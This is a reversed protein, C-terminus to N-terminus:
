NAVSGVGARNCSKRDWLKKGQGQLCKLQSGRRSTQRCYITLEKFAHTQLHTEINIQTRWLFLILKISM